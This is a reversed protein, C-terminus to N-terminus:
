RRMVASCCPLHKRKRPSLLNQKRKAKLPYLHHRSRLLQPGLFIIRSFCIASSYSLKMCMFCFRLVNEWTLNNSFLDRTLYLIYIIGKVPIVFHLYTGSRKCILRCCCDATKELQVRQGCFAFVSVRSSLPLISPLFRPSTRVIDCFCSSVQRWWTRHHAPGTSVLSLGSGAVAVLAASHGAAALSTCRGKQSEQAQAISLLLSVSLKRWEKCKHLM